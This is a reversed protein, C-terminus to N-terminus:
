QDRGFWDRLQLVDGLPCLSCDGVSIVITLEIYELYWERISIAVDLQSPRDRDTYSRSPVFYLLPGIYLLASPAAYARFHNSQPLMAELSWHCVLVPTRGFALISANWLISPDVEGVSLVRFVVGPVIRHKGV